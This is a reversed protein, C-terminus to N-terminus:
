TFSSTDWVVLMKLPIGVSKREEYKLGAIRLLSAIEPRWTDPDRNTEWPSKAQFPDFSLDGPVEDKQPKVLFNHM